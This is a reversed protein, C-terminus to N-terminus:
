NVSKGYQLNKNMAYYSYLHIFLQYNIFVLM